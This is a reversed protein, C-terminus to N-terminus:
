LTPTINGICKTELDLLKKKIELGYAYGGMAKNENIVRHCPIIIVIKNKGNASGVARYAKPNAIATAEEKYSVTQGYPITQLYEWAKQQFPTGQQKLPLQFETRNGEFYEQLQKIANDLLTSNSEQADEEQLVFRVSTIYGDQECVELKGIPSQYYAKNM